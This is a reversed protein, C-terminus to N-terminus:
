GDQNEEAKKAEVLIATALMKAEDPIALTFAQGSGNGIMMQVLGSTNRILAIHGEDWGGHAKSLTQFEIRLM